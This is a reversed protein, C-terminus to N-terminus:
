YAWVVIDEYVRSGDTAMIRVNLVVKGTFLILGLDNEAEDKVFIARTTNEDYVFKVNKQSANDPYVRWILQVMTGTLTEADGPETYKVKIVKKDGSYTVESRSDTENVCEISKVPIVENYVVSKMGFLSIVVISACYIVAIFILTAKKM